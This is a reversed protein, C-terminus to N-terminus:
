SELLWKEADEQNDFMKLQFVNEIKNTNEEFFVASVQAYLNQSLMHAMKMLGAQVMQPVWETAIWENAEDWVGELNRNDNLLLICNHQQIENLMLYGGQQIQEVSLYSGMWNSYLIKKSELYETEIFVTQQEDKLQKKM